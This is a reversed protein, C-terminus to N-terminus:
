PQVALGDVTAGNVIDQVYRPEVVIAHGWTSADEPTHEKIWDRGAPTMHFMLSVSGHHEFRIDPKVRVTSDFPASM